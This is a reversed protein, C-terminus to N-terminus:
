QHLILADSAGGHGEVVVDGGQDLMLALASALRELLREISQQAPRQVGITSVSRWQWRKWPTELDVDRVDGRQQCGLVVLVLEGLPQRSRAFRVIM